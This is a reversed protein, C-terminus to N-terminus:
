HLIRAAMGGANEPIDVFATNRVEVFHNGVVVAVVLTGLDYRYGADAVAAVFCELM